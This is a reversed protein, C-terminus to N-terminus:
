VLCNTRIVMSPFGMATPGAFVMMWARVSEPSGSRFFTPHM